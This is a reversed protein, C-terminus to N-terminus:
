RLARLDAELRTLIRAVVDGALLISAYANPSDPALHCRIISGHVEFEALEHYRILLSGDERESLWYALGATELKATLEGHEPGPPGGAARREGLVVTYDPSAGARSPRAALELPSALIVGHIEYTRSSAAM